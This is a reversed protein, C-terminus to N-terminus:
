KKRKAIEKFFLAKNSGDSQCAEIFADLEDDTADKLFDDIDEEDLLNSPKILEEYIDILRDHNM